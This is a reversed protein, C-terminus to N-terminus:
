GALRDGVHHLAGDLGAEILLHRVLLDDICGSPTRSAASSPANERWVTRERSIKTMTQSVSDWKAGVSPMGAKAMGLKARMACLRTVIVGSSTTTVSARTIPASIKDNTSPRASAM